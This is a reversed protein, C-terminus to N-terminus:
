NQGKLKKIKKGNRKEMTGFTFLVFLLLCFTLFLLCFELNKKPMTALLWVIKRSGLVIQILVIEFRELAERSSRGM